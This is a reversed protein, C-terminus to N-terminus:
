RKMCDTITTLPAICREEGFYETLRTIVHGKNGVLKLRLGFLRDIIKTASEKQIVWLHALTLKVGTVGRKIAEILSYKISIILQLSLILLMIQDDQM